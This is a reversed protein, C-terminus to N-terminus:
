TMHAQSHGALSRVMSHVADGATKQTAASIMLSIDTSKVKELKGKEIKKDIM